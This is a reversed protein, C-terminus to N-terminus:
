FREVGFPRSVTMTVCGVIWCDGGSSSRNHALDDPISSVVPKNDGALMEQTRRVVPVTGFGIEILTSEM